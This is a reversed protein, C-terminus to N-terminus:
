RHSDPLTSHSSRPGWCLDKLYELQFKSSKLYQNDISVFARRETLFNIIMRQTSEDIPTSKLKRQLIDPRLMDFAASLDLTYMTVNMRQDLTESVHHQIELAATVTSHGTKFTKFGHQALDAQITPEIRHLVCKEFVKSMSCLNSVPRYNSVETKQGKKHIPTIKAIKWDEPFYNVKIMESFMSALTPALADCCDKILMM